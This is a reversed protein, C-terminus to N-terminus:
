RSPTPPRLTLGLDHYLMTMERDSRGPDRSYGYTSTGSIDWGPGAYYASGAVSDYTPREVPRARGEGALWVRESDGLKRPRGKVEV